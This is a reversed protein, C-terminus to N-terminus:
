RKPHWRRRYPKAPDPASTDEDGMLGQAFQGALRALGALADGPKATSECDVSVSGKQCKETAYSAFEGLVMLMAAGLGIFEDDTHNSAGDPTDGEDKSLAANWFWYATTWWDVAYQLPLLSAHESQLVNGLDRIQKENAASPNLLTWGKALYAFPMLAIKAARLATNGYTTHKVLEITKGRKTGGNTAANFRQIAAAAQVGSEVAGEITAMDVNGRCLDGAFAINPLTEPYATAPMWDWSGVDNLFLGYDANSRAYTKDWDVDCDPDGWENGIDIDPYYRQLEQMMFWAQADFDHGPLSEGDSAAIVLATKGDFDADWLQAIDVVSLGYKANTLGINEAPFGPLKRKLYIDIVPIPVSRLRRVQSLSQERDIIRDGKAINQNGLVLDTLPGAPVAIVVQDFTGSKSGASSGAKRWHLQPRDDVLRIAEVETSTEITGGSKLILAEIPAIVGDQLSSKLMHAFPAGNPFSLTHRIFDQYTVASTQESRISWIVQLMYNELEAVQETSTSQSYLFGNVSQKDLQTNNERNFPYGALDVMSYGMLFMEAPSMAGSKLNKIIAELSTPNLLEDYRSAGEKFMKVGARPEFHAKRSLGLDEEYLQWFNDYWDCFMHPYVDHEVGNVQTSSMNGGLRENREFLTVSFGAKLLKVAATLGAIGGGVVAVNGGEVASKAKATKASAKKAAPKRKTKTSM